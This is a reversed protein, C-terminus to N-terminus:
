GCRSVTASHAAGFAAGGPVRLPFGAYAIVGLDEIALEYGHEWLRADVRYTKTM